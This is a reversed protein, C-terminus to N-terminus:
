THNITVRASPHFIWVDIPSSCSSVRGEGLCALGMHRMIPAQAIPLPSADRCSAPDIWQVSNGNSAHSTHKLSSCERTGSHRHPGRQTLGVARDKGPHRALRKGVWVLGRM